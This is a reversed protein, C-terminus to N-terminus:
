GNPDLGASNSLRDLSRGHHPDIEGLTRACRLLRRADKRRLRAANGDKLRELFATDHESLEDRLLHCRDILTELSFGDVAVYWTAEERLEMLKEGQRTTLDHQRAGISELFDLEWETWMMDDLAFLAQALTRARKPNKQVESIERFNAM